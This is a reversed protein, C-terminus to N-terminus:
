REAQGRVIGTPTRDHGSGGLRAGLDRVKTKAKEEAQAKVETNGGELPTPDPPAEEAEEM